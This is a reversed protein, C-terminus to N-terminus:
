GAHLPLAFVFPCWVAKMMRLSMTCYGHRTRIAPFQDQVQGSRPQLWTVFRENRELHRIMERSCPPEPFDWERGSHVLEVGDMDVLKM